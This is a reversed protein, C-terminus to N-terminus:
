FTFPYHFLICHVIYFNLINFINIQLFFIDINNKEINWVTYNVFMTYDDTNNTIQEHKVTLM